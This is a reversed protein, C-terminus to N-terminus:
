CKSNTREEEMFTHKKYHEVYGHEFKDTNYLLALLDLHPRILPLIIPAMSHISARITKKQSASLSNKLVNRLDSSVGLM